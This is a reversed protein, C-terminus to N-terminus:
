VVKERCICIMKIKNERERERGNERLFFLEIRFLLLIRREIKEKSL